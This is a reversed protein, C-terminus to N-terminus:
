CLSALELGDLLSSFILIRPHDDFDDSFRMPKQSFHVWHQSIRGYFRPLFTREVHNTARSQARMQSPQDSCDFPELTAGDRWISSAALLSLLGSLTTCPLDFMM